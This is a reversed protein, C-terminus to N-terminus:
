RRPVVLMRCTRSENSARVLSSMVPRFWNAIGGVPLVYLICRNAGGLSSESNNSRLVFQQYANMDSRMAVAHVPHACESSSASTTDSKGVSAGDASAPSQFLEGKDGFDGDKKRACGGCRTPGFCSSSLAM